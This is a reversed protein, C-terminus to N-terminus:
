LIITGEPDYTPKAGVHEISKKWNNGLYYFRLSDKEADMLLSLQEQYLPHTFIDQIRQM